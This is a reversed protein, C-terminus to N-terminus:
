ITAKYTEDRVVDDMSYTPLCESVVISECTRTSWSYVVKDDKLCRLRIVFAIRGVISTADNTILWTFTMTKKDKPDEQFDLVTYVGTKEGVDGYNRYHIEINNCLSIDHEEIFRPVKFTVYESNHDMWAVTTMTTCRVARTDPNIVFCKDNDIVKHVHAM